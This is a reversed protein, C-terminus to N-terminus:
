KKNKNYNRGKSPLPPPPPPLKAEEEEDEENEDKEEEEEEDEEEEEVFKASSLSKEYRSLLEKSDTTDVNVAKWAQWAAIAEQMAGKGGPKGVSKNAQMVIGIFVNYANPAKKAKGDSDVQKKEKKVKGGKTLSVKPLKMQKFKELLTDLDSSGIETEHKLFDKVMSLVDLRTQYVLNDMAGQVINM